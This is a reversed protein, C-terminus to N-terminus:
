WMHGGYMLTGIVVLLNMVEWLIFSVIITKDKHAVGYFIWPATMIFMLIWSIASVGTAQRTSFIQYIQPIVTFPGIIGAIFTTKDLFRLYPSNPVVGVSVSREGRAEKEKRIHKHKLGLYIHM